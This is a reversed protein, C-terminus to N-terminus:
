VCVNWANNLVSTFKECVNCCVNACMLGQLMLWKFNSPHSVVFDGVSFTRLLLGKGVGIKFRVVFDGV